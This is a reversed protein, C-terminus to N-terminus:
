ESPSLVDSRRTLKNVIDFDYAENHVSKGMDGGEELAGAEAGVDNRIDVLVFCSRGSARFSKSKFSM